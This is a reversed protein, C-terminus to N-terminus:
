VIRTLIWTVLSSSIAVIIAIIIERKTTITNKRKELKKSISYSHGKTTLTIIDFKFDGLTVPNIDIYSNEKMFSLYDNFNDLSMAQNYKDNYRDLLQKPLTSAKLETKLINFLREIEKM